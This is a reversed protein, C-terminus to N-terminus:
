TRSARSRWPTATACSDRVADQMTAVKSSGASVSGSVPGDTRPDACCASSTARPTAADRDLLQGGRRGPRRGDRRARGAARGGRWRGPPRLDLHLRNKVVKARARDPLAVARRGPRTRSSVRGRARRSRDLEYGLAACWFRAVRMPDPCDFTLTDVAVTMAARRGRGRRRGRRLDRARARRTRASCLPPSMRIADDGCRADLLGKASRATSSRPASFRPRRVRRRDDAGPGRVERISTTVAGRHRASREAARRRGQRANELLHEDEIVDITALAAACSSRTAATPRATRASGDVDDDLGAAIMAGLPMGSAIGKGALLIDPEVGAHEVAWMRGTRGMGPSCRTASWCSATVTACSASRWSGATPRCSTAARASCRSSSSRRSRTRLSSRRSCSTSSTTSRRSATRPSGAGDAHRPRRRLVRAARRAAATRVRRPVDGEVRHAVGLRISRGHFSGYFGILYQRGTAWRALKIGAEVAETGSNTLFSRAPESMPALEDLRERSRPTSRCSSTAVGLLPDARGGAAPDGRGGHPHCHGTSTVAIGANLDLFLNGDVDEVVSGAGRKPVFPYARPLSPSVDRPADRELVEQAKPGPCAGHRAQAGGREGLGDLEMDELSVGRDGDAVARAPVAHVYYPGGGAKGTTGSGKWGGFPQVGPWAGTTAGARRNVYVVGAQIRDLWEDIEAPDESFFGATLGYETDNAKEIADDLEDFPAVAVFPVFLEKKWIWNDTPCRSSRRSSSSGRALDGDTLREGGTVITGNKRAEEAAEEFTEM